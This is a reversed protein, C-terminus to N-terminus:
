ILEYYLVSISFNYIASFDLVWYVFLLTKFEGWFLISNQFFNFKYTSIGFVGDVKDWSFKGVRKVVLVSLFLM